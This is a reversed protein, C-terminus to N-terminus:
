VYLVSQLLIFSKLFQLFHHYIPSIHTFSSRRTFIGPLYELFFLNTNCFFYTGSLFNIVTFIRPFNDLTGFFNIHCATLFDDFKIRGCRVFLCHQFLYSASGPIKTCRGQSLAVYIVDSIVHLHILCQNWLIQHTLYFLRSMIM